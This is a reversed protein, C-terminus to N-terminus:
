INENMNQAIRVIADFNGKSVVMKILGSSVFIAILDPGAMMAIANWSMQAIEM